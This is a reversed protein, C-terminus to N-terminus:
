LLHSLKSFDYDIFPVDDVIREVRGAMYAKIWPDDTAEPEFDRTIFGVLDIERLKLFYPIEALWKADLQVEKRYGMLFHMMFTEAFEVPNERMLTGYFLVMAIDYIEHGYCCDDFDFLTIQGADDVFLNGTHADQHIMHYTEDKPLAMLHALVAKFRELVRADQQTFTEDASFNEEDDWALRRWAPDSATYDRSLRHIRGITEGYHEMFQPTWEDWDLHDGRAKEFATGMFFAGHGDAIPEVWEGKISQVAAAARAGGATLHNIWDMEGRIAAESRRLSHGIRLILPKGQCQYEYIFSEAGDIENASGEDAAYRRLMEQLMDDTFRARIDPKM